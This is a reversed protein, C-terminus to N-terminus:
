ATEPLGSIPSAFFASCLVFHSCLIRACVLLCFLVCLILLGSHEVSICGDLFSVCGGCSEFVLSCGCCWELCPLVLLSLGQLHTQLSINVALTVPLTLRKWKEDDLAVTRLLTQNFGERNLYDVCNSLSAADDQVDPLHDQLFKADIPILNTQRLVFSVSLRVIVIM